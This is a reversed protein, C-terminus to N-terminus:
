QNDIPMLPSAEVMPVMEGIFPIQSQTQLRVINQLYTEVQMFQAAEIASVKRKVITYYRQHLKQVALDNEFCRKAIKDASTENLQSYSIAYDRIIALRELGLASREKEYKDYLMWFTTIDSSQLQMVHEIVKRKQLSYMNEVLQIEQQFSQSQTPWGYLVLVLGLIYKMNNM